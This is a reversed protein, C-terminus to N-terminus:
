SLIGENRIVFAAGAVTSVTSVVIPFMCSWCLKNDDFM